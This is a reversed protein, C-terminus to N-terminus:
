MIGAGSKMSQRKLINIPQKRRKRIFLLFIKIHQFRERIGDVRYADFVLILINKKFGQYNCLIDMLKTRASDINVKALEKLDDWAFIINYGDVLLYEKVSTKEKKSANDKTERNERRLIDSSRNFHNRDRKM